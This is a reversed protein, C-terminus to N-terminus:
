HQLGDEKKCNCHRTTWMVVKWFQDNRTTIGERLEANVTMKKEGKRARLTMIRTSSNKEREVLWTVKFGTGNIYV